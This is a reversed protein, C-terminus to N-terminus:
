FQHTNKSVHAFRECDDEYLTNGPPYGVIKEAILIDGDCPLDINDIKKILYFRVFHGANHGKETAPLYQNFLKEHTLNFDEFIKVNDSCDEIVWNIKQMFESFVEYHTDLYGTSMLYVEGFPSYLYYIINYPSGNVYLCRLILHRSTRFFSYWPKSPNEIKNTPFKSRPISSLTNKIKSIADYVAQLINLDSMIFDPAYRSQVVSM